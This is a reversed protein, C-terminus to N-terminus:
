AAATTRCGHTAESQAYLQHQAAATAISSSSGRLAEAEAMAAMQVRLAGMEREQDSRARAFVASMDGSQARLKVKEREELAVRRRLEDMERQQRLVVSHLEAVGPAARLAAAPAFDAMTLEASSSSALPTTLASVTRRAARTPTVVSSPARGITTTTVVSGHRTVQKRRVVAREFRMTRHYSVARATWM